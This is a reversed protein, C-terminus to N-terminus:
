KQGRVRLRSKGGCLAGVAHIKLNIVASLDTGGCGEVLSNQFIQRKLQHKDGVGAVRPKLIVANQTGDGLHARAPYVLLRSYVMYLLSRKSIGDRLFCIIRGHRNLPVPGPYQPQERSACPANKLVLAGIRSIGSIERCREHLLGGGASRLEGLRRGNLGFYLAMRDARSKRDQCLGRLLPAKTM